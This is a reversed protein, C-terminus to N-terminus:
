GAGQSGAGLNHQQNDDEYTRLTHGEDLDKLLSCINEHLPVDRYVTPPSPLMVEDEETAYLRAFLRGDRKVLEVTFFVEKLVDEIDSTKDYFPIM